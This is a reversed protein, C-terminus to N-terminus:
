GWPIARRQGPSQYPRDARVSGVPRQGIRRRGCRSAEHDEEDLRTSRCRPTAAVIRHPFDVTWYIKGACNLPRHYSNSGDHLQTMQPIEERDGILEVEPPGRRLEMYRLRGQALLNPTELGFQLRGEEVPGCAVDLQSIGTSHEEGFGSGHDRLGLLGGSGHSPRITSLDPLEDHATGKPGIEEVPRSNDSEKGPSVGANIDLQAIERGGFLDGLELVPGNM